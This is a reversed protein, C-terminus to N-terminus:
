PKKKNYYACGDEPLYGGFAGNCANYGDCSECRHVPDVGARYSNYIQFGFYVLFGIGGATGLFSLIGSLVFLVNMFENFVM